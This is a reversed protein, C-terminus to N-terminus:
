SRFHHQSPHHSNLKKKMAILISLFATLTMKYFVIFLVSMVLGHNINNTRMMLPISIGSIVTEAIFASTFYRLFVFKPIAQFKEFVLINLLNSIWVFVFTMGMITPLQIYVSLYDTREGLNALIYSILVFLADCLFGYRVVTNAYLKGYKDQIINVFSFTFPFFILGMSIHLSTGSFSITKHDFFFFTSSTLAICFLLPLYIKGQDTEITEGFIKDLIRSNM